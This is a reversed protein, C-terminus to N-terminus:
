LVQYTAKLKQFLILDKDICIDFVSLFRYINMIENRCRYVERKTNHFNQLFMQLYISPYLPAKQKENM